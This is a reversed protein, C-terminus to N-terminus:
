PIRRVFIDQWHNFDRTVLNTAESSFTILRGDWSISPESSVGTAEAGDWALSVRETLGTNRDHVFIDLTGNTDGPVLNDSLSTFVVFRGDGSIQPDYGGLNGENNFSDVSVRTTIRTHRDHVFCDRAQNTDGLVFNEADSQFAVFRGNSSVSPSESRDPAGQGTSDVSVRQMVGSAVDFAFIDLHRNQDHSVLNSAASSFVITCGDSSIAPNQSDGNGLVGNPGRSILRSNKTVQDYLFIDEKGNGDGQVLNNATSSYTIFHGIGSISPSSSRGNGISGSSDVSVPEITGLACDFVFVDWDDNVDGSYLNSAGSEFVVFRGDGSVSPHLSGGNSEPGGRERSVRQIFGTKLDKLFVDHFKNTDDGVLDFSRSQFAVFRGDASIASNFSTDDAGRGSVNESARVTAQRSRPIGISISHFGSNFFNGQSDRAGVEFHIMSGTASRPIKPILFEGLGHTSHVGSALRLLPLGLDFELGAHLTGNLNLSSALWYISLPPAAFWKLQIQEDVEAYSVGTLIISNKPHIEGRDFLFIDEDGNNDGLVLNTALSSYVIQSGDASISPQISHGNPQNGQNDLSIRETEGSELDHLFIDMSANHDGSVLDSAKSQFAVFRGDASIAPRFSWGSAQVGSSDVSIRKLDTSRVNYVFIDPVSNSDGPVLNSSNSRFAVVNGDASISPQDSWSNGEVGNLNMSLRQITGNSLDALFVDMEGNTDSEILLPNDSQFAILNGAASIKPNESDGASAYGSGIGFSILTTSKLHRDHLFVDHTWYPGGDQPFFNTAKSYFTVFRGDASISPSYSDGNGQEGGPSLSVRETIKTMRDHIFIDQKRNSDGPALNHAVSAFAVYRGDASISPSNSHGAAEVGDSNVSVRETQGSACHYVFIDTANNHDRYVLKSADSAFAIFRGDASLSAQTSRGDVERGASDVSVRKTSQGSIFSCLFLAAGLAPLCIWHDRNM